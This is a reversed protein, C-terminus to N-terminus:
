KLDWYCQRKNINLNYSGFYLIDPPNNLLWLASALMFLLRYIVKERDLRICKKGISNWFLQCFLECWLQCCVNKLLMVLLNITWTCYDNAFRCRCAPSLMFDLRNISTMSDKISLGGKWVNRKNVGVVSVHVNSM